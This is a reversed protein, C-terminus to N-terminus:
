LTQPTAERRTTSSVWDSCWVCMSSMQPARIPDREHGVCYRSAHRTLSCSNCKRVLGSTEVVCNVCNMQCLSLHMSKWHHKAELTSALGFMVDYCFFHLCKRLVFPFGACHRTAYQTLSCSKRKRTGCTTWTSVTPLQGRVCLQCLRVCNVCSVISM